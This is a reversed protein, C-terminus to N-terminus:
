HAVEHTLSHCRNEPWTGDDRRTLHQVIWFSLFSLVTQYFGEKQGEEEEDEEEEEEPIALEM